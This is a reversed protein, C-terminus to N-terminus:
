VKGEPRSGIWRAYKFFWRSLKLAVQAQEVNTMGDFLSHGWLEADRKACLDDGVEMNQDSWVDEHVSALTTHGKSGDVREWEYILNKPKPKRIKKRSM